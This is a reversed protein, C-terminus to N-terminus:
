SGYEWRTAGTTVCAQCLGLLTSMSAVLRLVCVCVFAYPTAPREPEDPETKGEAASCVCLELTM